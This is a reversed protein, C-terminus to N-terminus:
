KPHIDKIIQLSVTYDGNEIVTTGVSFTSVYNEACKMYFDFGPNGTEEGPVYSGKETVALLQDSERATAVIAFGASDAFNFVYMLTDPSVGSRTALEILYKVDTPDLIRGSSSRTPSSSELMDIGRQAIRLAEARGIRPTLGDPLVVSSAANQPMEDSKECAAFLLFAAVVSVMLFYCKKM